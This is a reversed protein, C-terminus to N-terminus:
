RHKFPNTYLSPNTIVWLLTDAIQCIRPALKLSAPTNTKFQIYWDIVFSDRQCNWTSFSESSSFDFSKLPLMCNHYRISVHAHLWDSPRILISLCYQHHKTSNILLWEITQRLSSGCLCPRLKSSDALLAFPFNSSRSANNLSNSSRSETLITSLVNSCRPVYNFVNSDALYLLSSELWWIHRDRRWSFCV